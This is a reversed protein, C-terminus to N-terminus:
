HQDEHIVEKAKILQPDKEPNGALERRALAVISSFTNRDLIGSVELKNEAQYQKLVAETTESLYGDTRDVEYDLYSLALQAIRVPEGISDYAYAEDEEMDSYYQYYIEPMSVEIDPHVGEEHISVGDPSYWYYTTIKLAGGNSLLRNTQIVGKGYTTKGVITVNDCRERLVIAFVEAASATDESTLLVIKSFSYKKSDSPTRDVSETGDIGKQRLYVENPGIFLGCIDRVATQYGGSDSRLDIIIKDYGPYADLYKKCAEATSAGFSNPEMIIYDDEAYDFVTSNVVGRIVDVDFVEGGRDITLTVATGEIGLVRDKIDQTSMGEVQEGNIYTIIDGAQLGAKEAPSSKFVRLILANGNMDSYEVGIGVYSGNISDSFSNMEEDSMYTTYPDFDFATMGYLAKNELEKDLDEYRDGYLWYRNMIRQIENYPSSSFPVSAASSTSGVNRASNLFLVGLLMGLVLCFLCLMFVLFRKRRRNRKEERESRLPQKKLDFLVTKEENEM